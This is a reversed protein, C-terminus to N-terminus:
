VQVVCVQFGFREMEAMARSAQEMSCRCYNSCTTWVGSILIQVSYMRYKNLM